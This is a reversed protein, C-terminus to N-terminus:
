ICSKILEELQFVDYELWDASFKEAPIDINFYNEIEIEFTVFALSDLIVDKLKFDMENEEILAGTNELCKFIGQRITNEGM